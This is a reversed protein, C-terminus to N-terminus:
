LLVPFAQTLAFTKNFFLFFTKMNDHYHIDCSPYLCTIAWHLSLKTYMFCVFPVKEIITIIFFYMFFVYLLGCADLLNFFVCM